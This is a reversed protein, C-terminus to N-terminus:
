GSGITRDVRRRKRPRRDGPSTTCRSSAPLRSAHGWSCRLAAGSGGPDRQGARLRRRHSPSAGGVRAHARREFRGATRLPRDGHPGSWDAGLQGADSRRPRCSDEGAGRPSPQRFSGPGHRRGRVSRSRRRGGGDARCGGVPHAHRRLFRRGGRCWADGGRVKRCGCPGRDTPSVAAVTQDAPGRAIGHQQEYQLARIVVQAVPMSLAEVLALDAADFHRGSGSSVLTVAGLVKDGDLVPVCMYSTFQLEKLLRYHSENRTTAKLFADSVDASWRSRGTRMVQVCPDPAESDPAFEGALRDTAPQMAPDAHRALVRVPEDREDAVDIIFLDALVPLAVEAMREITELYGSTGALAGAARLLFAQARDSAQLRALLDDREAQEDPKPTDERFFWVRGHYRGTDDIAPSGYVTLTRGDVLSFSRFRAEPYTEAEPPPVNARLIKAEFDARDSVWASIRGIVDSFRAGAHLYGEPLGWIEEFRRNFGILTDRASVALIGDISADMQAALFADMARDSRDTGALAESGGEPEGVSTIETVM